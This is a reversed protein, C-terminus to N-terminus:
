FYIASQTSAVLLYCRCLTRNRAMGSKWGPTGNPRRLGGFWILFYKFKGYLKWKLDVTETAGNCQSVTARSKRWKQKARLSSFESTIIYRANNIQCDVALISGRTFISNEGSWIKLFRAHLALDALDGLLSTRWM